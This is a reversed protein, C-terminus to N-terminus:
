TTKYGMSRMTLPSLGEVSQPTKGGPRRSDPSEIKKSGFLNQKQATRLWKLKEVPPLSPVLGKMEEPVDELLEALVLEVASEAQKRKSNVEDFRSKPIMHENDGQAATDDTKKDSREAKDNGNETENKNEESM